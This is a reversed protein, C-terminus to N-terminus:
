IVEMKTYFLCGIYSGDQLPQDLILHDSHKGPKLGNYLFRVRSSLPEANLCCSWPDLAGDVTCEMM